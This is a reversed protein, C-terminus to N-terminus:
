QTAVALGGMAILFALIQTLPESTNVLDTVPQVYEHGLVVIPSGAILAKEWDQYHDFSTTESSMFAVAYIVISGLAAHETTLTYDIWAFTIDGSIAGFQFLSLLGFFMGLAAPLTRMNAYDNLLGNM